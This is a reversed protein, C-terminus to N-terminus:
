GAVFAIAASAITGIGLLLAWRWAHGLPSVGKAGPDLRGEDVLRKRQREALVGVTAYSILTAIVFGALAAAIRIGFSTESRKALLLTLAALLSAYVPYILPGRRSYISTLSLGIGGFVGVVAARLVLPNLILDLMVPPDEM